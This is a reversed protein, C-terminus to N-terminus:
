VNNLKLIVRISQTSCKCNLQQKHINCTVGFECGFLSDDVLSILSVRTSTALHHITGPELSFGENHHCLYFSIWIILPQNNM